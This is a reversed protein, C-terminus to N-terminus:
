DALILLAALAQDGSSLRATEEESVRPGKPPMRVAEETATIRKILPAIGDEGPTVLSQLSDGGQRADAENSLRLGGKREDPGHCAYCHQQLIPAIDRQYDPAEAHAPGAICATVTFLLIVTKYISM